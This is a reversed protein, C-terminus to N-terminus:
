LDWQRARAASSIKKCDTDLKLKSFYKECFQQYGIAMRTMSKTTTPKPTLRSRKEASSAGTNIEIGDVIITTGKNAYKVMDAQLTLYALQCAEARTIAVTSSILIDDDKIGADYADAAVNIAWSAGTYQEITADYGLACLLLKAFACGTLVDAPGFNGDGYGNIIGLNVCYEIYGASWRDAAVDTFTQSTAGTLAAANKSGLLMYAIVKAAQERTLSGDPEFTDATMGNIVGIATMVDIAEEYDNDATDTFSAASAGIVGFSVVLAFVLVLALSKKLTKM